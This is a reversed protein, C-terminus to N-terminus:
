TSVNAGSRFEAFSSQHVLISRVRRRARLLRSQITTERVGLCEAIQRCSFGEQYKLVLVQRDSPRIMNLANRVEEVRESACLQDIETLQIQEPATSAYREIRRRYRSEKRRFLMVQKVAVQYLWGKLEHIDNSCEARKVTALSIEQLVDETALRDGLRSYVVTWLWHRNELFGNVLNM